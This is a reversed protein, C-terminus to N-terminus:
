AEDIVDHLDIVSRHPSRGSAMGRVRAVIDSARRADDLLQRISSRAEEVDPEPAKLWRLSAEAGIRIAALPQSVEHVISATLEGLRSLRAAHAFDGQTSKNTEHMM